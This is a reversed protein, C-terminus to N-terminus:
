LWEKKKSLNKTSLAYESFQAVGTRARDCKEVDSETAEFSVFARRLSPLLGTELDVTHALSILAEQASTRANPNQAALRGFLPGALIKTSEAFAFKFEKM